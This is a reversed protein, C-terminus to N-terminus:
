VVERSVVGFRLWPPSNEIGMDPSNQTGTSVSILNYISLRDEVARLRRELAEVGSDAM